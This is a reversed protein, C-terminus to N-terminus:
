PKSKSLVRYGLALLGIMIAEAIMPTATTPATGDLAISIFRGFLAISLLTLPVRLPGAEGRWAGILAFIGGTLFFAPFDARVTSLGQTGIPSLAFAAALKAPNVLFGIGLLTNFGGVLGIIARMILKMITELKANIIDNSPPM